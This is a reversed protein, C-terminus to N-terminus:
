AGPLVTNGWLSVLIDFMEDLGYRVVIQAAWGEITQLLFEHSGLLWTVLQPKTLSGMDGRPSFLGTYIV